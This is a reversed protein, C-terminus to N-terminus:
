KSTRNRRLLAVVIWVVGYALLVFGGIPLTVLMLWGLVEMTYLTNGYDHGNIVCPHIGGENLTCGHTGAVYGAIMVSIIPSFAFLLIVGIATAHLWLRKM